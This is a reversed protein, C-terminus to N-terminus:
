TASVTANTLYYEPMNMIEVFLEDGRKDYFYRSPISKKYQSLGKDVDKAFTDTM